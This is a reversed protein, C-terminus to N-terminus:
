PYLRVDVEAFGAARHLHGPAREGSIDSHRLHLATACGRLARYVATEALRAAGADAVDAARTDVTLHDPPRQAAEATACLRLVVEPTRNADELVLSLRTCGCAAALALATVGNAGPAAPWRGGAEAVGVAVDTCRGDLRRLRRLLGAVQPAGGAVRLMTRPLRTRPLPLLRDWAAAIRSERSVCVLGLSERGTRVPMGADCEVELADRPVGRLFVVPGHAGRVDLRLAHRGHQHADFVVSGGMEPAGLATCAATGRIPRQQGMGGKRVSPRCGPTADRLDVELRELGCGATAAPWHFPWGWFLM